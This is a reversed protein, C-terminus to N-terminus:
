VYSQSSPTALLLDQPDACERATIAAIHPVDPQPEAGRETLCERQRNRSARYRVDRDSTRSATRCRSGPPGDQRLLWVRLSSALVYRRLTGTLPEPGYGRRPGPRRRGPVARWLHNIENILFGKGTKEDQRQRVAWPPGCWTRFVYKVWQLAAIVPSSFSYACTSNTVGFM